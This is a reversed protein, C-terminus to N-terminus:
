NYYISTEKIIASAINFLYYSFVVINTKASLTIQTEFIKPSFEFLAACGCSNRNSAPCSSNILTTVTPYDATVSSLFKQILIPTDNNQVRKPPSIDPRVIPSAEISLNDSSTSEIPFGSILLLVSRMKGTISRWWQISTVRSRQLAAAISVSGIKKSLSTVGTSAMTSDTVKTSIKPSIIGWASAVPGLCSAIAYQHQGTTSPRIYKVPM